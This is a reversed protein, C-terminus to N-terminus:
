ARQAERRRALHRRVPWAGLHTLAWGIVGTVAGIAFAEYTTPTAPEFDGWAQAAIHPDYDEVFTVLRAVPPANKLATFADQLRALRQEDAQAAAGRDRALPDPNIALRQIADSPTLSQRTADADFDAVERRLEDIAGALRQRYQQAFEPGQTGILAFLLGIAVALRRIFM